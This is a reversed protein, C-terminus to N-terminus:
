GNRDSPSGGQRAAEASRFDTLYHMYRYRNDSQQYQALDAKYKEQPIAAQANWRHKEEPTLRQWREGVEKSIAAFSLPQSKLDERVAKSFLVYASYPREPANQDPILHHVYRRKRQAMASPDDPRSPRPGDGLRDRGSHIPWPYRDRDLNSQEVVRRANMIERQLIRRHGLDVDLTALDDETIEMVTEWSDFGAQVLREQYQSLGLWSLVLDMDLM